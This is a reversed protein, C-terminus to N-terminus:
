RSRPTRLAASAPASATACSVRWLECEVPTSLGPTRPRRRPPSRICPASWRVPSPSNLQVDIYYRCPPTPQTRQVASVTCAVDRDMAFRFSAPLSSQSERSSQAGGGETREGGSPPPRPRQPPTCRARLKRLLEPEQTPCSSHSGATRRRVTRDKHLPVCSAHTGSSHDRRQVAVLLAHTRVPSGVRSRAHRDCSVEKQGSCSRRTHSPRPHEPRM